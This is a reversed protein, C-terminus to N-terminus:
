NVAMAVLCAVGTLNLAYAGGATICNTAGGSDSGATARIIGTNPNGDDIKSDLSYANEPNFVSNSLLGDTLSTPTTGTPRGIFIVNSNSTTGWLTGAFGNAGTGGNVLDYAAGLVKSLPTNTGPSGATDTDPVVAISSSIMGSLALQKWASRVEKLTDIKGNANGNCNTATAACTTGWISSGNNFDGPAQAYRGIFNNYSAQYRQFDTIVSNLEASKIMSSGAAIGAILFGIIILVISLEVLTFGQETSRQLNKSM